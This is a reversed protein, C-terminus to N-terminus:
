KAMGPALNGMGFQAGPAKGDPMVPQQPAGMPVVNGAQAQQGMLEDPVVQIRFQSINKLGALQAVWQFIGGLDYQMGIQPVTLISQFLQQWLQVQANRDIPLTGDVPVFGYSGAILDPTVQIFGPGAGLALDGAIRFKMDMDYYQQSNQLIMQSLPDFGTASAYEAVTKLRNIGFSTSTRVETATKRGGGNLMGMIQDNVGGVREGIGMMMPFDQLHTRTVDNVPMQSMVLKVDTGYAEPKLRIIGGPLPDLVDKMVVKSPDVVFKNNLAARVNFFHSNILWDVTNQVPELIEPLGRTTLGYGEPELPIVSYPFKCHLAGLPQAGILLGFDDTCTFVWKEPYDSTSLNWEAPIVEMVLRYTGVMTPHKPGDLLDSQGFRSLTEPRELQSSGDDGGMFYDSSRGTTLRETNMLYGQKEQRVIENWSLKKREGCYAGSQFERMTYRTDWIFDQPQVNYVKNGAYTRHRETRQQKKPPGQPFGMEDVEQVEEITTVANIDEAWWCGQIGEGYKLSDYLWTYLYPLMRGVRAQYAVLAEVAQTQQQSEGHQGDYQFVPNRGMFVSTLYTHAAMVVAYSYPIQITTYSPLGGERAVRRAADVDREPMYALAKEEAQRWKVFKTSSVRQWQKVAQNLEQLIMREQDSGAAIKRTLSPM